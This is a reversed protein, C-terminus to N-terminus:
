GGPEATQWFDRRSCFTKATLLVSMLWFDRRRLVKGGPESTLLGSPLQFNQYDGPTRVIVSSAWNVAGHVTNQPLAPLGPSIHRYKRHLDSLNSKGILIFLKRMEKVWEKM